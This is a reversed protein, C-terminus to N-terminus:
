ISYFLVKNVSFDTKKVLLKKKSFCSDKKNLCEQL